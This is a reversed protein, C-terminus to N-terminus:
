LPMEKNIKMENLKILEGRCQGYTIHEYAVQQFPCTRKIHNVWNDAPGVWVEMAHDVM